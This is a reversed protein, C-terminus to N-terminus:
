RFLKMSNNPVFFGHTGWEFEPCILQFEGDFIPSLQRIRIEAAIMGTPIVIPASSILSVPIDPWLRVINKSM